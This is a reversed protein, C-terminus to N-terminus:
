FDMSRLCFFLATNETFLGFSCAGNQFDTINKANLSFNFVILTLGNTLVVSIAEPPMDLDLREDLTLNLIDM